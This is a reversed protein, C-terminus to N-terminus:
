YMRWAAWHSIGGMDHLVRELDYRLPRYRVRTAKKWLTDRLYRQSVRPPPYRVRVECARWPPFAWFLPLPIAGLRGHQSVVFGIARLLPTDSLYDRPIACYPAVLYMRWTDCHIASQGVLKSYRWVIDLDFASVCAACLHRWPPTSKRRTKPPNLFAQTSAGLGWKPGKEPRNPESEPPRGPQIESKQDTVGVKPRYSQSEPRFGFWQTSFEGGFWKEPTRCYLRRSDLYYMNNNTQM